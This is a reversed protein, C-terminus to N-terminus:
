RNICFTPVYTFCAAQPINRIPRGHKPVYLTAASAFVALIALLFTLVHWLLGFKGRLTSVLVGFHGSCRFCTLVSIFSVYVGCLLTGTSARPVRFQSIAKPCHMSTFPLPLSTSSIKSIAILIAFPFVHVATAVDSLGLRLLAAPQLYDAFMCCHLFVVFLPLPTPTTFTSSM